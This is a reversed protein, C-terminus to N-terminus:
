QFLRRSLRVRGVKVGFYVMFGASWAIVAGYVLLSTAGSGSWLISVLVAGSVVFGTVNAALVFKSPLKSQTQRENWRQELGRGIRYWFLGVLAVFFMDVVFRSHFVAAAPAAALMVPFDVITLLDFALPMYDFEMVLHWNEDTSQARLQAEHKSREFHGGILLAVALLVHLPSFIWRWPLRRLSFSPSVSRRNGIQLNGSYNSESEVARTGTDPNM